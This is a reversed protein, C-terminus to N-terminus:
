RAAVGLVEVEGTTQMRLTTLTRRTPLDASQEREGPAVRLEVGPAITLTAESTARTRVYVRGVPGRGGRLPVNLRDVGDFL